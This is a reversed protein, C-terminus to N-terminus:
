VTEGGLVTHDDCVARFPCMLEGKTLGSRGSLEIIRKIEGGDLADVYVMCQTRSFWIDQVRVGAAKLANAKGIPLFLILYIDSLQPVGNAHDPLDEYYSSWVDSSPDGLRWYEGEYPGPILVNSIHAVDEDRLAEVKAYVQGTKAENRRRLRRELDDSRALSPMEDFPSITFLTTSWYLRFQTNYLCKAEAYIQRCALLLSKSPPSTDLVDVSPPSTFALEWISNRLEPPLTLLRCRPSNEDEAM